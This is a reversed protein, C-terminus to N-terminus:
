RILQCVASLGYFIMQARARVTKAFRECFRLRKVAFAMFASIEEIVVLLCYVFFFFSPFFYYGFGAQDFNSNVVFCNLTWFPSLSIFQRFKLAWLHNLKTANKLRSPNRETGAVENKPLSDPLSNCDIDLQFSCLSLSM